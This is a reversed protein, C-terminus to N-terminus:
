QCLIEKASCHNGFESWRIDDVYMEKKEYDDFLNIGGANEVAIEIKREDSMFKLDESNKSIYERIKNEDEDSIISTYIVTTKTEVKFM